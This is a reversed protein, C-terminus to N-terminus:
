LVYKRELKAMQDIWETPTGKVVTIVEVEVMNGAQKNGVL